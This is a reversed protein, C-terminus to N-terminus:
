LGQVSSVGDGRNLKEDPEKKHIIYYVGLRIADKCHKSVGPPCPHFAVPTPKWTGPSIKTQESFLGNIISLILLLRENMKSRTPIPISEVVVELDEIGLFKSLSEKLNLQSAEGVNLVNGEEDLLAYGTTIGPDISLVKM